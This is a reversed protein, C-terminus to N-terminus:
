DQYMAIVKNKTEDYWAYAAQSVSIPDVICDDPYFHEHIKTILEDEERTVNPSMWPWGMYNEDKECEECFENYGQVAKQQISDWLIAEESTLKYKQDKIPTDLWQSFKNSANDTIVLASFCLIAFSHVYVAECKLIGVFIICCIFYLALMSWFIKDRNNRILKM